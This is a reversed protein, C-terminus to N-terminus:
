GPELALSHQLDQFLQLQAALSFGTWPLIMLGLERFFGADMTASGAVAFSTGQRWVEAAVAGRAALYPPPLPLGLAEAAGFGGEFNDYFGFWYIFM